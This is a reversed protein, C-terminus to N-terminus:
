TYNPLNYRSAPLARMIAEHGEDSDKKATEKEAARQQKDAEKEAAREQKDLLDRLSDAQRHYEGKEEPALKAVEEPSLRKFERIM